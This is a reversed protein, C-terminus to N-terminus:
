SINAQELVFVTGEDVLGIDHVQFQDGESGGENSKM